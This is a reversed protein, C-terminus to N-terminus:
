VSGSNQVELNIVFATIIFVSVAMAPNDSFIHLFFANILLAILAFFLTKSKRFMNNLLGAIFLIYIILGVIGLEFCIQLYYNESIIGGLKLAVPGASGVGFGFLIKLLGGHFFTKFSEAMATQHGIMSGGHTIIDRPLEGNRLAYTAALTVAIVIFLIAYIVKDRQGRGVYAFMAIASIILGILASRSYTLGIALAILILLCSDTMMLISKKGAFYRHLLYFFPFILYSALQNPGALIATAQTTSILTNQGFGFGVLNYYIDMYGRPLFFYEIIAMVALLSAIILYIKILKHPNKDNIFRTTLYIAFPLILFRLGQLGRQLDNHYIAIMVLALLMIAAALIDVKIFKPLQRQIAFKILYILIFLVIVPEYFHTLWFILQDSLGTYSQLIHLILEYLPLYIISVYLFVVGIKQLLNEFKNNSVIQEM